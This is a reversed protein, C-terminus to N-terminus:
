GRGEDLDIARRRPQISARLNMEDAIQDPSWYRGLAPMM